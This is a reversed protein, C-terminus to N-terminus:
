RVTMQNFREGGSGQQKVWPRWHQAYHLIKLIKVNNFCTNYMCRIRGHENKETQFEREKDEVVSFAERHVLANKFVCVCLGVVAICTWKM